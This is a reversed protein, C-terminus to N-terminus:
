TWKSKYINTIKQVPITQERHNLICRPARSHVKLQTHPRTSVMETDLQLKNTKEGKKKIGFLAINENM